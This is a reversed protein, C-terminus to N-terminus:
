VSSRRRAIFGVAALGALLMAYSSPEPVPSTITLTAGDFSATYGAMVTNPVKALSSTANPKWDILTSTTGVTNGIQNSGQALNFFPSGFYGATGVPNYSSGNAQSIHTGTTVASQAVSGTQNFVSSKFTSNSIQASSALGTNFTSVLELQSFGATGTGDFVALGWLPTTGAAFSSFGTLATLNQSYGAFSASKLANVTIGTDLLFSGKDNGLVFFLESAGGTLVQIDALAPTASAAALATVAAIHRLKM